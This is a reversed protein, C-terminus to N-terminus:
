RTTSASTGGGPSRTASCHGIPASALPEALVAVQPRGLRAARDREREVYSSELAARSALLVFSDCQVIGQDIAASWDTGAALKHVDFWVALGRRGLEVALREAFYFDRRSYSVFIRRRDELTPDREPAASDMM